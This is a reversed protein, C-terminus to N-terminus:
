PDMYFDYIFLQEFPNIMTVLQNIVFRYNQETM